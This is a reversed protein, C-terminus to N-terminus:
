VLLLGCRPSSGNLEADIGLDTRGRRGLSLQLGPNQDRSHRHCQFRYPLRPSTSNQRGMRRPSGSRCQRHFTGCRLHLCPVCQGNRQLCMDDVQRGPPSCIGSANPCGNRFCGSLHESFMRVGM